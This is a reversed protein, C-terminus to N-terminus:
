IIIFFISVYKRPSIKFNILRGKINAPDSLREQNARTKSPEKNGGMVSYDLDTDFWDQAEQSDRYSIVIDDDRKFALAQTDTEKDDLVKVIDWEETENPPEEIELAYYNGSSINEPISIQGRTLNDIDQYSPRSMTWYTM